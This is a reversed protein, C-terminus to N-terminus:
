PIAEYEAKTTLENGGFIASAFVSPATQEQARRRDMGFGRRGHKRQRRKGILQQRHRLKEAGGSISSTFGLARNNYGGSVSSHQNGARNFEGGSISTGPGYALGVAGGSISSQSGSATNFQGGSVAAPLRQGHQIRRRDGVVM